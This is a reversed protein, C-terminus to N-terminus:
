CTSTRGRSRSHPGPRTPSHGRPRSRHWRSGSGLQASTGSPGPAAAGGVLLGTPLWLGSRAPRLLFYVVLAMLAALTLALVIAGGGALVGFAVGTNRVHVLQIAPLFRHSDGVPIGTVVLHKTIRDLVLVIAM